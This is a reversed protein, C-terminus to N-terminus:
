KLLKRGAFFNEVGNNQSTLIKNLHLFVYFQAIIEGFIAAQM